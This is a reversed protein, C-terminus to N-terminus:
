VVSNIVAVYLWDLALLFAALAGIWRRTFCLYLGAVAALVM